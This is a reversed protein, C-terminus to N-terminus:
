VRVVCRMAIAAEKAAAMAAAREAQWTPMVYGTRRPAACTAHIVADQAQLVLLRMTDLEARLAANEAILQANTMKTAMHIEQTFAICM